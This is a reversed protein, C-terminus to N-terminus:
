RWALTRTQASLLSRMPPAHYRLGSLPCLSGRADSQLAELYSYDGDAEIVEAATRQVLSRVIVRSLRGIVVRRFRRPSSVAGVL